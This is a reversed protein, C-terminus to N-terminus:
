CIGSSDYCECTNCETCCWFELGRMRVVWAGELSKWWTDWGGVFRLKQKQFEMDQGQGVGGRSQTRIQSGQGLRRLGAEPMSKEESHRSETFNGTSIFFLGGM